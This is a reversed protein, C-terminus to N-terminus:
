RQGWKEARFLAKKTLIASLLLTTLVAVLLGYVYPLALSAPASMQLQPTQAHLYHTLPLANAWKQASPDMAVLPYTVGSFAFAPASIFGTFSLGQRYSATLLTLIMGLWFSLMMFLLFVVYTIGLSALAVPKLSIVLGFAVLGWLAYALMALILKGNLGLILLWLSPQTSTKIGQSIHAYWQALTADRLERGIVSVGVVMSLIHLLAPMITVALFQQYNNSSNFLSISQVQIPSFQNKIISVDQGLAARRKLEAGASFTQVATQVGKQIMGSHTGFQANVNLLLRSSNGSLLDKEFSEPIEVYAYIQTQEIAKKGTKANPLLGQVTVEPTADLYRILTASSPSHSHDIVAIPLDAIAGKSFVWWVLFIFVIPLWFLVAFDWRHQELFRGEYKASRWFVTVSSAIFDLLGLTM